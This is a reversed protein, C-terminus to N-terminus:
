FRNTTRGKGEDIGQPSDLSSPDLSRPCSSRRLSNTACTHLSRRSSKSSVRHPKARLALPRTM